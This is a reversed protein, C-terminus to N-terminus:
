RASIQSEPMITYSQFVCFRFNICNPPAKWASASLMKKSAMLLKELVLCYWTCWAHMSGQIFTHHYLNYECMTIIGQFISFKWHVISQKRDYEIPTRSTNKRDRKQTGEYFMESCRKFNICFTLEVLEIFKTRNIIVLVIYRWIRMSKWKAEFKYCRKTLKL